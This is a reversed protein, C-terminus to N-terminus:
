PLITMSFLELIERGYNENVAGSRNDINDLWIIMAPDRSIELLLTDLSGMGHERFMRFQDTLPKGNTVKAYGTAFINNWFLPIKEKLPENTSALRYLLSSGSGSFDHNSSHDPHYRRILADSLSDPKQSDLLNDVTQEYGNNLCEQLEEKTSGFGARRMLHAMLAIDAKNNM